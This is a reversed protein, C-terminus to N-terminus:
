YSDVAVVIRTQSFICTYPFSHLNYRYIVENEPEPMLVFKCPLIKMRWREDLGNKDISNSLVDSKTDSKKKKNAMSINGAVFRSNATYLNSM